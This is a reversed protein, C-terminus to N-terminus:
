KVEKLHVRPAEFERGSFECGTDEHYVTAKLGVGCYSLPANCKPCFVIPRLPMTVTTNKQM